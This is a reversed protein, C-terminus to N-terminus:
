NDNKTKYLPCSGNVQKNNGTRRQRGNGRVVTASSHQTQAPMPDIHGSHILRRREDSQAKTVATLEALSMTLAAVTARDASTATTLNALATTMNPTSDQVDHPQAYHRAVDCSEFQGSPVQTVMNAMHYGSRLATQSIMCIERHAETFFDKFIPWNQM